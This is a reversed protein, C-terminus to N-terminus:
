FKECRIDSIRLLFFSGQPCTIKLFVHVGGGEGGAGVVVM